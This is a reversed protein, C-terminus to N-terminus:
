SKMSGKIHDYREKFEEVSIAGYEVLTFLKEMRPDNVIKEAKKTSELQIKKEIIRENFEHVATVLHFYHSREMEYEEPSILGKHLMEQLIDLTKNM